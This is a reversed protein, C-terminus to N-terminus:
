LKHGRRAMFWVDNQRREDEYTRLHPLLTVSFIFYNELSFLILFDSDSTFHGIYSSDWLDHRMQSAVQEDM